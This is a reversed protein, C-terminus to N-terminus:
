PGEPPLTGAAGFGGGLGGMGMGGFGGQGSWGDLGDPGMPKLIALNQLAAHIQRLVPRKQRIILRSPLTRVFVEDDEWSEPEIMEQLLKVVDEEMVVAEKKYPQWLRFVVTVYEDAPQSAVRPAPGEAGRIRMSVRRLDDLLRQIKTHITDTQGIALADVGFAFSIFGEGGVDNWSDAAIQSITEILLDVDWRDLGDSEATNAHQLLDWVPYLVVNRPLSAEDHTTILLIEHDIVFTLAPQNAELMATLASRFSTTERRFTVSTHPNIAADALGVRDLRIPVNVQRALSEVVASLPVDQYALSISARLAADIDARSQAEAPSEAIRIPSLDSPDKTRQQRLKRMSTLLGEVTRHVRATQSITVTGEGEAIGQPPGTGDEWSDPEVVTTILEILSDYDYQGRGSANPITDLIADRAPQGPVVYALDSVDYVKTILRQEAAEETTIWLGDDRLEYTLSPGFEDLLYRLASRLTVNENFTVRPCPLGRVAELVDADRPLDVGASSLRNALDAAVKALRERHARLFKEKDIEVAADELAPVDLRVDLGVKSEIMAVVDHLHVGVFQFDFRQNLVEALDDANSDRPEDSCWGAVGLGFWLLAVGFVGMRVM